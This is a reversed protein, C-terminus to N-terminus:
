IPIHKLNNPLVPIDIFTMVLDYFVSMIIKANQKQEETRANKPFVKLLLIRILLNTCYLMHRQTDTVKIIAGHYTFSLRNIEYKLFYNDPLHERDCSVLTLFNVMINTLPENLLCVM